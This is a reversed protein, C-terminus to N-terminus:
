TSECKYRRGCTEICTSETPPMKLPGFSNNSYVNVVKQEEKQKSYYFFFCIFFTTILHTNSYM